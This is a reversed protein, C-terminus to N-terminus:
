GSTALRAWRIKGDSVFKGVVPECTEVFFDEVVAEVEQLSHMIFDREEDVYKDIRHTVQYSLRTLGFGIDKTASGVWTIPKSHDVERKQFWFQINNIEFQPDVDAAWFRVHHRKRPSNGIPQQFGIDQKRGFLFHASFPAEHYPRNMAFRRIMKLATRVTLPDAQYWGAEKFAWILEDTSGALLLNVPDTVLGTGARTM